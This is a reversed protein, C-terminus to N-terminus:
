NKGDIEGIGCPLKVTIKMGQGPQSEIHIHGSVTEVRERMGLLGYGKKILNLDCGQGNDIVEIIIDNDKRYLLIKAEVNNGAHRSINTLGEQIIRYCSLQMHEDLLRLNCNITLELQHQPHNYIWDNVLEHLCHALGFESLNPPRLQKLNSRLIDSMRESRQRLNAITNEKTNPDDSHYFKDLEIRMTTLLQGLEDHLEAAIRKREIEQLEVAKRKQIHFVKKLSESSEIIRFILRKINSLSLYRLRGTKEEKQRPFNLQGDIRELILSFLFVVLCSSLIFTFLIPILLEAIGIGVYKLEHYIDSRIIVEGVHRSHIVVPEVIYVSKLHFIDLIVKMVKTMVGDTDSQYQHNSEIMSGDQSIFEINLRDLNRWQQLEFIPIQNKDTEAINFDDIQERIMSSVLTAEQTTERHNILYIQVLALVELFILFCILGAIFLAVKQAVSGTLIKNM